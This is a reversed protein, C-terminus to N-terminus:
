QGNVSRKERNKVTKVTKQFRDPADVMRRPARLRKSVRAARCHM